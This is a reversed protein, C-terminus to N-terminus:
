IWCLSCFSPTVFMLSSHLAAAFPITKWFLSLLILTSCFLHAGATIICQYEYVSTNIVGANSQGQGECVDVSCVSFWCIVQFVLREEEVSTSVILASCLCKSPCHGLVFYPDCPSTLLFPGTIVFICNFSFVACETIIESQISSKILTVRWHQKQRTTQPLLSSHPLNVGTDQCSYVKVAM